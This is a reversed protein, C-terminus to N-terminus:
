NLFAKVLSSVGEEIKENKRGRKFSSLAYRLADISHNNKDEVISSIEGTQPDSKYRYSEFEDIMRSCEPHIVIRQFSKLLRLGDAISGAGKKATRVNIGEERLYHMLKTENTDARVIAEKDEGLVEWIGKSIEQQPAGRSWWLRDVILEGVKEGVLPNVWCRVVATPDKDGWDAGYYFFVSEEQDEPRPTEEVFFKDKFVLSDSYKLFEGLWIHKYDEGRMNKKDWLREEKLRKPLYINDKYNVIEIHTNPRPNKEYIQFIPDKEERPNYSFIMLADEKRITPGLVKFFEHSIGQAEDCWVYKIGELSKLTNEPNNTGKFIFHSSTLTCKLTHATIEFFSELKFDFIIRKLVSLSSDSIVNHTQRICLFLTKSEQLSKMILFKAIEYSKGGGRGGKVLFSHGKFNLLTSFWANANERMILLQHNLFDKEEQGVEQRYKEISLDAEFEFIKKSYDSLGLAKSYLSFGGLTEKLAKLRFSAEQLYLKEEGKELGTFSQSSINQMEKLLKKMELKLVKVEELLENKFSPPLDKAEKASSAKKKDRLAM